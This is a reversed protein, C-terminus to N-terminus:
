TPIWTMTLTFGAATWTITHEACNYTSLTLGVGSGDNAWDAGTETGTCNVGTFRDFQVLRRPESIDDQISFKFSKTGSAAGTNICTTAFGCEESHDWAMTTTGSQTGNTWALSLPQNLSLWCPSKDGDCRFVGEAVWRGGVATAVYYEGPIPTNHLFFVSISAGGGSFTPSGGETENGTIYLDPTVTCAIPELGISPIASVQVLTRASQHPNAIVPIAEIATEIARQRDRMTRVESAPYSNSATSRTTLVPGLFRESM